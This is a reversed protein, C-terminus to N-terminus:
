IRHLMADLRCVEELIGEGIIYNSASSYIWDEPKRVFNAKVPNNHIYNIKRWVFDENYLEIAHNGTQWFKISKNRAYNQGNERFLSLLWERRSEPEDQIQNIIQKVTHRKFDRIVDSLLFPADCNVVMHLHNTMICYAYVNLGKNQICYRLSSIIADRHNQRSFVDIWDVVTMTIFYSTNKKITHKVGQKM